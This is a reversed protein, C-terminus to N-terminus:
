VATEAAKAPRAMAARDAADLRDEDWLPIIGRYQPPPLRGDKIWRDVSREHICYRNAVQRKRLFQKPM